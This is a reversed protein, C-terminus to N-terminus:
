GGQSTINPCMVANSSANRRSNDQTKHRRTAAEYLIFADETIERLPVRLGVLASPPCGRFRRWVWLWNQRWTVFFIEAVVLRTPGCCAAEAYTKRADAKAGSLALLVPFRSFEVRPGHEFVPLAAPWLCSDWQMVCVIWVFRCISWRARTCRSKRSPSQRTAVM